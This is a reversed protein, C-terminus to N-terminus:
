SSVHKSYLLRTRLAERAIVREDWAQKSGAVGIIAQECGKGTLLVIDGTKASQIAQEIAQKRDYIIHLYEQAIGQKRAGEAVQEMIIRPDDDYPDENTIFVEDAHKAAISGLIPRRAIDRGGGCSGFVHIIREHPINQVAEYLKTLSAPEPAYDVIVTFDQGEDIREFRGPLGSVMGVKKIVEALPFDCVTAVAIAAMANEVNMKGPLNIKGRIGNVTFSTAWGEDKLDLANMGQGEGIGYWALELGPLAFANAHEDLRNLVATKKWVKGFIKKQYGRALHRFLEIKAQKYNEFGGHAEIHEPTLNTFVCIDYEINTHRYQLIGQSSTEVVIYKCGENVMRRLLKQLQFRGLMTMKRDNLWELKGIKFIATSTCGTQDGMAELAKAILYSVTTKGNTGTVGIVVAERSPNGYILAAFWSLFRHYQNLVCDPIVKKLRHLM